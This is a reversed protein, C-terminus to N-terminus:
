LLCSLVTRWPSFDCVLVGNLNSNCNLGQNPKKKKKIMNIEMVGNSKTYNPFSHVQDVM